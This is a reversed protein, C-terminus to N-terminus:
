EEIIADLGDQISEWSEYNSMDFRVDDDIKKHDVMVVGIERFHKSAFEFITFDCRISAMVVKPFGGRAEEWEVLYKIFINM